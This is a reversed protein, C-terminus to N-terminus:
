RHRRAQDPMILLQLTPSAQWVSTLSGKLVSDRVATYLVPTLSTSPYVGSRGEPGVRLGIPFGLTLTMVLVAGLAFGGLAGAGLHWPRDLHGRLLRRTILALAAGLLLALSTAILAGAGVVNALFCAVVGGLGWVLGSLGRRAGLATVVAWLTVLLADFWTIM